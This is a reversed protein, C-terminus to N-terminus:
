EPVAPAVTETSDATPPTPDPTAAPTTDATPAADATPASASTDAAPTTAADPVNNSQAVPVIMSVTAAAAAVANATEIQKVVRFMGDSIEHAIEAVILPPTNADPAYKQGYARLIRAADAEALEQKITIDGTDSGSVTFSISAM